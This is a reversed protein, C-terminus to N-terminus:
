VAFGFYFGVEREDVVVLLAFKFFCFFEEVALDCVVLRRSLSFEPVYKRTTEVIVDIGSEEVGAVLGRGYYITRIKAVICPNGGVVVAVAEFHVHRFVAGDIREAGNGGFIVLIDLVTRPFAM